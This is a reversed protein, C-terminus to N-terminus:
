GDVREKTADGARGAVALRYRPRGGRLRCGCAGWLADLSGYRFIFRAVFAALVDSRDEHHLVTLGAAAFADLFGDGGSDDPWDVDALALRGGPKLVRRWESLAARRDAMLALACESLVGDFAADAFPLASADARALTGGRGGARAAALAAPDLDIGLALLGRQAMLALSAGRGCGVDLVCDGPRFGARDILAATLAGGGPRLPLGSMDEVLGSGYLPAAGATM